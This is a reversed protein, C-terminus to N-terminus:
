YGQSLIETHINFIRFCKSPHVNRPDGFFPVFNKQSFTWHTWNNVFGKFCDNMSPSFANGTVNSEAAMRFMMDIGDNPNFGALALLGVAIEDAEVEVNYLGLGLDQAKRTIAQVALSSKRNEAEKKQIASQFTDKQIDLNPVASFGMAFVLSEPPSNFRKAWEELTLGPLVQYVKAAIRDIERLTQIRAGDSVWMWKTRDMIFNATSRILDACPQVIVPPLGSMQCLFKMSNVSFKLFKQDPFDEALDPSLTRLQAALASLEGNSEPVPISKVKDKQIKYFFQYKEAGSPEKSNGLPIHARYIHSLEHALLFSMMRENLIQFADDSVALATGQLRVAFESAAVIDGKGSLKEKLSSNCEPNVFIRESEERFKCGPYFVELAKLARSIETSTAAPYSACVDGLPEISKPYFALGTGSVITPNTGEIVLPIKICVFAEIAMGKIGISKRVVFNIPPMNKLAPFTALAATHIHNVIASGLVASAHTSPLQAGMGQFKAAREIQEPPTEAHFVADGGITPILDGYKDRLAKAAQTMKAESSATVQVPAPATTKVEAPPTKRLFCGTTVLSLTVAVLTLKM